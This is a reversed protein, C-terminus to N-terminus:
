TEGPGVSLHDRRLVHLPLGHCGPLGLHAFLLPPPAEQLRVRYLRPHLHHSLHGPHHAGHHPLGCPGGHGESLPSSNTKLSFIEDM